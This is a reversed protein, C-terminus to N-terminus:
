KNKSSLGFISYIPCFSIFSTAIFITAIILLVISLTGDIKGMFYLSAILVAVLVRIIKDTLGVNTKM